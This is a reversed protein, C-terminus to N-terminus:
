FCDKLICLGGKTEILAPIDNQNIEGIFRGEEFVPVILFYAPSIKSVVSLLDSECDFPIFRIKKRCRIEGCLVCKKEFLFREKEFMVSHALFVTFFLLSLNLTKMLALVIWVSFSLFCLFGTMKKMLKEGDIIGMKGQVFNKVMVGGDLPLAPILNAAAICLNAFEFFTLANTCFVKRFVFSVLFLATSTCPGAVTTFFCEKTGTFRKISLNVGFFGVKVSECKQKMLLAAAFHGAEHIIAAAYAWLVETTRGSLVGM